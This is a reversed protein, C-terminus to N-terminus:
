AVDAAGERAGKVVVEVEAGLATWTQLGIRSRRSRSRMGGCRRWPRLIPRTWCRPWVARSKLSGQPYNSSMPPIRCEADVRAEGLGLVATMALRTDRDLLKEEATSAAM